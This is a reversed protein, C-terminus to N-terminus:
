VPVSAILFAFPFFLLQLLILTFLFALLFPKTLSCDNYSIRTVLQPLRGHQGGFNLHANAPMECEM